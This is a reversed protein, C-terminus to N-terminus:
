RSCGAWTRVADSADAGYPAVSAALDDVKADTLLLGAAELGDLMAGLVQGSPQAHAYFGAATVGDRMAQEFRTARWDTM